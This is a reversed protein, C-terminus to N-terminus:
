PTPLERVHQDGRQAVHLPSFPAEDDRDKGGGDDERHRKDEGPERVPEPDLGVLGDIREADVHEQDLGARGAREDPRRRERRHVQWPDGRGRAHDRRSRERVGAARGRQTIGVRLTSMNPAGSCPGPMGATDSPRGATSARRPRPTSCARVCRDAVVDFDSRASQADDADHLVGRRQGVQGVDEEGCCPACCSTYPPWGRTADIPIRPVVRAPARRNDPWRCAVARDGIQEPRQLHRDIRDRDDRNQQPDDRRQDDSRHDIQGREFAQSVERHELCNADRGRRDRGPQRSCAITTASDAASTPATSEANSPGINGICTMTGAYAKM